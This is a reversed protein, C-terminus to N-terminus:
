DNNVVENGEVDLLIYNNKLCERFTELGRSAGKMLSDPVYYKSLTYIKWTGVGKENEEFVFLELKNTSYVKKWQVKNM